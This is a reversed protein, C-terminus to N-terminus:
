EEDDLHTGVFFDRRERASIFQSLRTSQAQIQADRLIMQQRQKRIESHQKRIVEDRDKVMVLAEEYKRKWTAVERDKSDLQEQHEGMTKSPLPLSSSPTTASVLRPVVYPMRNQIAQSIVWQAYSGHMFDDRKGLQNRHLRHIGRWAQLFRERKGLHDNDNCYFENTLALGSPKTKMPYGLQRRALIPNYSIGGEMGILPVNPYEGCSIIVTGDDWIPHYWVIDSPALAM